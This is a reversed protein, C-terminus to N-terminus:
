AVRGVPQMFGLARRWFHMNSQCMCAGHKPRPLRLMEPLWYFSGTASSSKQQIRGKNQLVRTGTYCQQTVWFLFFFLYIATIRCCCGRHCSCRVFGRINGQRMHHSLNFIARSLSNQMRGKSGWHQSQTLREDKRKKKQKREDWRKETVPSKDGEVVQETLVKDLRWHTKKGGNLAFVESTWCVWPTARLYM